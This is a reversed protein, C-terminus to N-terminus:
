LSKVYSIVQGVTETKVMLAAKIAGFIGLGIVALDMFLFTVMMILIDFHEVNDLKLLASGGLLILGSM